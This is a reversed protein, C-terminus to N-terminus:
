MARGKPSGQLDEWRNCLRVPGETVSLHSSFFWEPYFASASSISEYLDLGIREAFKMNLYHVQTRIGARLACQKLIGLAISPRIISGWPASVLALEASTRNNEMKAM